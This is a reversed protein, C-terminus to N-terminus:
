SPPGGPIETTTVSPPGGLIENTTISPPGGLIESPSVGHGFACLLAALLIAASM